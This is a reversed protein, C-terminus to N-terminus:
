IDQAEALSLDGSAITPLDSQNVKLLGAMKMTIYDTHPVVQTTLLSCTESNFPLVKQNGSFGEVLEANELAEQLKLGDKYPVILFRNYDIKFAMRNAPPKQKAVKEADLYDM